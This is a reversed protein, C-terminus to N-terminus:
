SNRSTNNMKVLLPSLFWEAIINYVSFINYIINNYQLIINNCNQIIVCAGHLAPLLTGRINNNCVLFVGCLFHILKLNQSKSINCSSVNSHIIPKMIDITSDNKLKNTITQFLDELVYYLTILIM